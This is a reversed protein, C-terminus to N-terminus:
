SKFKARYEDCNLESDDPAEVHKVDTGSKEDAEVIVRFKRSARDKEKILEVLMNCWERSRVAEEEDGSLDRLINATMFAYAFYALIAQCIDLLATRYKVSFTWAPLKYYVNEM